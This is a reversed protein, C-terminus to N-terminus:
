LGVAEGRRLALLMQRVGALTTPVALMGPRNRATAMLRALWAQRARRCLVPIVGCVGGWGGGGGGAGGGGAAPAGPGRAGGGRPPPPPPAGLWPRPLEAVMRGAHAVAARVAGFSYGALAAHACFRQRYRASACFALWGLAAGLAHLLWLPLVSFFRLVVPM